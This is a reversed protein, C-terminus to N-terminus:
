WIPGLKKREHWQRHTIKERTNTCKDCYWRTRRTRMYRFDEGCKKCTSLQTVPKRVTRSM